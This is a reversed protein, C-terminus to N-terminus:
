ATLWNRPAKLWIGSPMVASARAIMWSAWCCRIFESAPPGCCACPATIFIWTGSRPHQRYQVALVEALKPGVAPHQGQDSRIKRRLVQMPDKKENRATYYWRELTSLGFQVWQGTLPHRWKKASLIQLQEQLQGREPPAALLSGIVSFRLRAWPEHSRFPEAPHSMANKM